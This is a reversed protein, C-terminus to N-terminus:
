TSPKKINNSQSICPVVFYKIEGEERPQIDVELKVVNSSHGIGAQERHGHM